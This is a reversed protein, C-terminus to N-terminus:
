AAAQPSAVAALTEAAVALAQTHLSAAEPQGALAAQHLRDALAELRLAGLPAAAGALAQASGAWESPPAARLAAAALEVERVFEPLLQRAAAPDLGPVQVAVQGGRLRLLPLQPPAAPPLHPAAPTLGALLKLLREREIPKALHGDM